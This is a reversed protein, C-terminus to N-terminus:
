PQKLIDHSGIRRWIIHTEGPRREAGYNFTARGDPAWTMEFIGPHDTVGKVRLSPHFPRKAKLDAVMQKVAANFLARHASPLHRFENTFHTEEDYTPM